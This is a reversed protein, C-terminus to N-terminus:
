MEDMLRRIWDGEAAALEALKEAARHIVGAERTVRYKLLMMRLVGADQAFGVARDVHSRRSHLHGEASLYRLRRAMCKKHEWLIHLPRIDLSGRHDALRPLERQLTQYVATGWAGQVASPSPGAADLYHQLSERIQGLDLQAGGGPAHRYLTVRSMRDPLYRVDRFALELEEFRVCSEGFTGSRRYGTVGFVGAATDYGHVLIAHTYHRRRYKQRDPIHFENAYLQVYSGSGIARTLFAVLGGPTGEV